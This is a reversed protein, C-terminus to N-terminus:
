GNGSMEQSSFGEKLSNYLVNRLVFVLLITIIAVIAAFAYLIENLVKQKLYIMNYISFKISRLIKHCKYLNDRDSHGQLEGQWCKEFKSFAEEITESGVYFRPRKRSHFWPAIRKVTKNINQKNETRVTANREVTYSILDSELLGVSFAIKTDSEVRKTYQYLLYTGIPLLLIAFYLSAFAKYARWISKM